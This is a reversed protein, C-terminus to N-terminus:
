EGRTVFLLVGILVAGLASAGVALWGGRPDALAVCLAAMSGLRSEARSVGHGSGQMEPVSHGGESARPVGSVDRRRVPWVGFLNSLRADRQGVWWM